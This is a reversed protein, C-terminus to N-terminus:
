YKGLVYIRRFILVINIFCIFLYSVFFNYNILGTLRAHKTLIAFVHESSPARALMLAYTVIAVEYPEPSDKLYKM